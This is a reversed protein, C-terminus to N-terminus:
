CCTRLRRNKRYLGLAFVFLWIVFPIIIGRQIFGLWPDFIEPAIPLKTVITL